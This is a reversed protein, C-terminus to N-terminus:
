IDPIENQRELNRQPGMTMSLTEGTGAPVMVEITGIYNEHIIQPLTQHSILIEFTQIMFHCLPENLISEKHKHYGQEERVIFIIAALIFITFVPIRHISVKECRGLGM